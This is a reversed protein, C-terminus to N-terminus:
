KHGFMEYASRWLSNTSHEMYQYLAKILSELIPKILSKEDNIAILFFVNFQNGLSSVSLNKAILM